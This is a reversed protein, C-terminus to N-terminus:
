LCIIQRLSSNEFLRRACLMSAIQSALVYFAIEQTVALIILSASTVYGVALAFCHFYFGRSYLTLLNIGECRKKLDVRYDPQLSIGSGRYLVYNVALQLSRIRRSYYCRCVSNKGLTRDKSVVMEKTKKCM